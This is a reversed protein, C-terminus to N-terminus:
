NCSLSQFLGPRVMKPPEPVAVERDEGAGKSTSNKGETFISCHLGPGGLLSLSLSLTGRPIYHYVPLV